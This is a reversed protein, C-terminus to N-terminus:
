KMQKLPNWEKKRRKLIIRGIEFIAAFAADFVPALEYGDWTRIFHEGDCHVFEYVASYDYIHRIEVEGQGRLIGRTITSDHDEVMAIGVPEWLWGHNDQPPEKGEKLSFVAKRFQNTHVQTPIVLDRSLSLIRIQGTPRGLDYFDKGDPTLTLPRDEKGCGPSFWEEYPDFPLYSSPSLFSHTLFNLQWKMGLVKVLDKLAYPNEEEIRNATKMIEEFTKKGESYREQIESIEWEFRTQRKMM